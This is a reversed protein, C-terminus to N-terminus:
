PKSIFSSVGADAAKKMEKKEGRGTAMIFPIKKLKDASRVWVLLEFGNKNPMNWDSIILDIKNEKQLKTIADNGDESEIVNKYGVSNLTMREMKRMVKADEVLLIKIGQDVSM